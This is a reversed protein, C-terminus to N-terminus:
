KAKFVLFYDMNDPKVFDYSAVREFGARDLEEVVKREDLGHDDGDGNRDIIGVLGGPRLAERVHRMVSLPKSFEHYTKLILVADVSARPLKPDEEGGLVTRVNPLKEREARKAIHDVFEQNIEVAYVVGEPAVRRAARVTFWGSGAGIDAVSAGPKLGLIDMVRDIQLKEARDEGEFISLNGKYPESTPRDVDQAERAEQAVADPPAPAEPVAAHEVVATCAPTALVFLLLLTGLRTRM